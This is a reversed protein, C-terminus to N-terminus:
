MIQRHLCFLYLYAFSFVNHSEIPLWNVTIGSAIVTLIKTITQGFKLLKQVSLVNECNLFWSTYFPIHSFDGELTSDGWHWNGVGWIKLYKVGVHLYLYYIEWGKQGFPFVGHVSKQFKGTKWKFICRSTREMNTYAFSARREITVYREVTHIYQLKNVYNVTLLTCAKQRLM